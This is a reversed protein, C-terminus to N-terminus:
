QQVQFPNADIILLVSWDCIAKDIRRDEEEELDLQTKEEPMNELTAVGRGRREREREERWLRDQERMVRRETREQENQDPDFLEKTFKNAAYIDHIVGRELFGQAPQSAENWNLMQLAFFLHQVVYFKM